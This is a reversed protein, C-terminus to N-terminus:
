PTASPHRSYRRDRRSGGHERVLRRLGQSVPADGGIADRRRGGSRAHGDLSKPLDQEGAPEGSNGSMAGAAVRRRDDGLIAAHLDGTGQRERRRRVDALQIGQRERVDQHRHDAAPATSDAGRGQEDREDRRQRRKGSSQNGSIYLGANQGGGDSSALLGSGFRSM